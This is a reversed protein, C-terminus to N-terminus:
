TYYNNDAQIRNYGAIIQKVDNEHKQRVSLYYYNNDAQIKDYYYTKETKIQAM